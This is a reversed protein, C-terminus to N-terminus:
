GNLVMEVARAGIMLTPANTNGSVITPMVSADAVRLGTTGRVRLMPDVVTTDEETGMRCTGVPHYFAECRDRIFHEIDSNSTVHSGPVLEEGRVGDFSSAALIERTLDFGSRLARLDRPNSLYNGRIAPSVTPDTSVARISGRSRPNILVSGLSYGHGGYSGRGHDEFHAPGFHFQLDPEALDPDSRVFAGAEAVNSTLRGRRLLAWKAMEVPNEADDLTETSTSAQIVGIVPHDQLHQGVHSNAAVVEIGLVAMHDPDGVGSMQLIQPSGIAGASLIVESSASVGILAGDKVYEVGTARNGEFIVRSVLADTVVELTPRSMAPRLYADAASWRRGRKQTVQYFGVGDQIAGNFDRNPAIGREAAAEVFLRALPNPNRLDEVRVSGSAGHLESAGRQNREMAIFVPLVDEWGWGIAGTELWRDYDSPRGRIYIMANMSSTGGLMKGRPLYFSRDLAHPEAETQYAWDRETMFQKSFAAPIVVESARDSGGAELLLVSHRTSLGEAIVCGASGAGVVIFDYM